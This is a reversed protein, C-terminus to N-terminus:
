RFLPILLLIVLGLLLVTGVADFVKQGTSLKGYQMSKYIKLVWVAFLLVALFLLFGLGGKASSANSKIILSM